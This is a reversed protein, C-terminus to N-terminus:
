INIGIEALQSKEIHLSVTNRWTLMRGFQINFKEIAKARFNAVKEKRASKFTIHVTLDNGKNSTEAFTYQYNKEDINCDALLINIMSIISRFKEM